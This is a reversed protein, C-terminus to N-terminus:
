DSLNSMQARQVCYVFFKFIKGCLVSLDFKKHKASFFSNKSLNEPCLLEALFMWFIKSGILTFVVCKFKMLFVSVRETFVFFTEEVFCALFTERIAWYFFWFHEAEETKKRDFVKQLSKKQQYTSPMELLLLWFNPEFDNKKWDEFFSNGSQKMKRQVSIFCKQFSSGFYKQRLDSFLPFNVNKEFFIRQRESDKNPRTHHCKKLLMLPFLKGESCFLDFRKWKAPFTTFTWFTKWSKCLLIYIYIYSLSLSLSLSLFTYSRLAEGSNANQFFYTWKKKFSNQTVHIELLTLQFRMELTLKLLTRACGRKM